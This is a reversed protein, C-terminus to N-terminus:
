GTVPLGAALWAVWLETLNNTSWWYVTLQYTDPAVLLRVDEFAPVTLTPTTIAVPSGAFKAPLALEVFGSTAAVGTWKGAGVLIMAGM